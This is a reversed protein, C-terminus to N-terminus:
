LRMRSETFWSRPARVALSVLEAGNQRCRFVSCVRVDTSWMEAVRAAAVPNDEKIYQAIGILDEAADPTWSLRM